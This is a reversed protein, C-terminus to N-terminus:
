VVSLSLVISIYPRTVEMFKNYFPYGVEMVLYNTDHNFVGVSPAGESDVNRANM